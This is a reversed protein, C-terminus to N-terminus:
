GSVKSDAGTWGRYGSAARRALWWGYQPPQDEWKPFVGLARAAHTAWFPDEFMERGIAVIDAQGNEIIMEAQRPATILGVAITMIDAAKRLDAAYPVQYGPQQAARPTQTVITNRVNIGGSSCDIADVGLAKLRKSLEITDAFTWGASDEASVRYFLPKGAPWKSRIAETVECAFRLRKSLDGGYADTRKNATPSLFQHILYGHAGHIEIVDFDADNARRAAEAFSQIVDQIDALTMERPTPWGDLHPLASPAIRDWPEASTDFSERPGLGMWPPLTGGKRGAHNLQIAPTGGHKRIQATVDRLSTVHDDSWMGMDGMTGLGRYEVKAAETFVLGAGGIAYRVLHTVHWDTIRGDEAMYQAMPSVMIRNRITVDRITVPQFLASTIEPDM